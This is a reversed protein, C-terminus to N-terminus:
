QVVWSEEMFKWGLGNIAKQTVNDVFLCVYLSVSLGVSGFVYGWKALSTIFDEYTPEYCDYITCLLGTYTSSASLCCLGGHGLWIM